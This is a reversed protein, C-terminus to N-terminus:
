FSLYPEMKKITIEDAVKVKKLDELSKFPGHQDRYNIIIAAMKKNRLYSHATLDELSATNINIKKVGSSVKAYRNLEVIAVSDLGFIESYQSTSHFGGLADRFKLIRLSLKSGIGRLKVLQSTDAVNIDFDTAVPRATKVYSEKPFYPKSDKNGASTKNEIRVATEELMIHPELRKYLESPFDYIGLMDAKKRFKGGKSRFKDIRKALFSPVGLEELQDVSVRNPDFDFLRVARKPKSEYKKPFYKPRRIKQQNEKELLAALSDLMSKSPPETPLPVMPLLYRRFVFPTWVLLFCVSILVLAGRAEKLSIGFYDQLHRVIRKFM